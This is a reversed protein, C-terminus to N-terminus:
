RTENRVKYSIRARCWGVINAAGADALDQGVAEVDKYADPAEEFVVDKEDCIVWTGEPDSLRPELINQDKYKQALTSLAKTRSMARGAGHALSLGNKLGWSTSASFTPQLILTPTGRSGPLPLMSLPLQTAPSYTPAAGKRHIYVYEQTSVGDQLKLKDTAESLRSTADLVIPSPPTPPWPVREINNHWIDVVKRQQLAMKAMGIMKTGEDGFDAANASGLGWCENGPELCSLFRLAILDRNAKAWQCAKDHEKLYEIADASDDEFSTRAETTYKKLVSGGYGRSGSHVLLVVDDKHLGYELNDLSSAEVVQLEAFHNGAGITGLANDWQEGASCDHLQEDLLWVQRYAQTRWVGELGRLKDAVKKGKDSDIQKRSLTTKYWAMGCGIDGGILPPHIWKKSAFVAGIPFKTGPHLDPQGVAHVIGPLTHATTTLQTVSLSEVPAKSALLEVPCDPNAKGQVNSERKIGVFEEGSSVLLVLDNAICTKWDKETLLEQGTRGVFVRIPKKMRLKSQATKLVLTQISSPAAPDPSACAPIVIPAKESQNTNSAVTLRIAPM